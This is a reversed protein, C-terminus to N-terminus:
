AADEQELAGTMAAVVEQDSTDTTRFRAVRRGLRLVEIRDTVAFVDPLSHSILVVSRGSDRVTRILELVARTQPVGLAATPEDMIVLQDAWTVARAVAVSQQQGGSLTAVPAGLDKINVNLRGLVDTAKRRMARRDLFGLRGALGGRILERGLYLNTPTDLEPALALDQFVTEIGLDRAAQPSGLRVRRGNYRVEGGDATEVGSLVKILTSKGAGNDGMLGVVEGPMVTVSAGRLAEVAGYRKTVDRAELIPAATSLQGSATAPQTAEGGSNPTEVRAEDNL